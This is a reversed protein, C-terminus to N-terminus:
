QSIAGTRWPKRNPLPYLKTIDHYGGESIHRVKDHDICMDKSISSISEGDCLRKCIAHVVDNSISRHHLGTRAAHRQNETNDCWELNNVNFNLPNGDIHNIQDYVGPKPNPILALAIMRHVSVLHMKGDLGIAQFVPYGKQLYVTKYEMGWESWVRGDLFLHYYPFGFRGLNISHLTKMQCISLLIIALAM